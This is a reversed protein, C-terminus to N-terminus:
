CVSRDILSLTSASPPQPPHQAHQQMSLAPSFYFFIATTISESYTNLPIM